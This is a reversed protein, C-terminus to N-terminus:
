GAFIFIYFVINTSKSMPFEFPTIAFITCQSTVKGVNEIEFAFQTHSIQLNQCKGDFPTMAFITSRSM